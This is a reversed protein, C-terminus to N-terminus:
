LFFFFSNVFIEMLFSLLSQPFGFLRLIVCYINKQIINMWKEGSKKSKKKRFYSHRNKIKKLKRIFYSSILYIVTWYMIKM